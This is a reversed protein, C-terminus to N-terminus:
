YSQFLPLSAESKYHQVAQIIMKKVKPYGRMACLLFMAKFSKLLYLMNCFSSISLNEFREASVNQATVSLLAQM